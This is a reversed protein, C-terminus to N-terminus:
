KLKDLGLSIVKSQFNMSINVSWHKDFGHLAKETYKNTKLSSNLSQTWPLLQYDLCPKLTESVGFFMVTIHSGSPIYSARIWIIMVECLGVIVIAKM